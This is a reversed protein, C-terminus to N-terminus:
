VVTKSSSINCRWKVLDGMHDRRFKRDFCDSDHLIIDKISIYKANIETIILFTASHRETQFCVYIGHHLCKVTVNHICFLDCLYWM